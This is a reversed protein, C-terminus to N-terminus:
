HEQSRKRQGKIGGGRRRAECGIRRGNGRDVVTFLQNIRDASQEFKLSLIAIVDYGNDNDM